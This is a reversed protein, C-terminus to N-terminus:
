YLVEMLKIGGCYMRWLVEYLLRIRGLTKTNEPYAFIGSLLTRHADAVMSGDWRATYGKDIFKNIVTERSNYGM